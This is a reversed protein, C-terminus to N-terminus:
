FSIANSIIWDFNFIPSTLITNPTLEAVDIQLRKVVIGEKKTEKEVNLIITEPPAGLLPIPSHTSAIFQIKPFMRSLRIVFERQWKAHLHIDIEDIIVIGELETPDDVDQNKLLEILMDGIMAIISKSGASLAGFPVGDLLQGDETKERYLIKKKESREDVIIDEV